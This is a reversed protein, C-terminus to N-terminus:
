VWRNKCITAPPVATVVFPCRIDCSITKQTRLQINNRSSKATVLGCGSTIKARPIDLGAFLRADSGQDRHATLRMMRRQLLAELHRRRRGFIWRRDFGHRVALRSRLSYVKPGRQGREQVQIRAPRQPRAPEFISRSSMWYAISMTSSQLPSNTPLEDIACGNGVDLVRRPLRFPPPLPAGLRHGATV